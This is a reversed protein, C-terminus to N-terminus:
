NRRYELQYDLPQNLKPSSDRTGLVRMILTRGDSSLSYTNVQKGDSTTFTRELNESVWRTSVRKDGWPIADEGFSTKITGTRDSKITVDKSTFSIIIWQPPPLNTKEMRSRAKGGFPWQVSNASVDIAEKVRSVAGKPDILTYSGALTRTPTPTPTPTPASASKPKQAPASKRKNQASGSGLSLLLSGCLVAIYLASAKLKM